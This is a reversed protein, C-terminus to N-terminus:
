KSLLSSVRRAVQMKTGEIAALRGGYPVDVGIDLELTRELDPPVLWGSGLETLAHHKTRYYDSGTSLAIGRCGRAAALLHPHFRTSIWRLGPDCPFGQRWLKAFPILELEPLYPRLLPLVTTDDPPLCEYLAIPEQDIGWAQFTRVVYDALDALPVELLDSQITIAAQHLEGHNYLEAGLDLFADDSSLIAHPVFPSIGAYSSPDRLDVVDFTKLLLALQEESYPVFPTLGSGTLALRAGHVEGVAAAAGILALHHPWLANIYGGGIIHVLTTSALNEIGTAERPILGPDTVVRGGFQLTEEASQTPANWCAQFLTDVCRLGPHIGSLLAASQGPRPTDLWIIADPATRAYYRLWARTVVEDGYNPHGATGVLYIVTPGTSREISGRLSAM